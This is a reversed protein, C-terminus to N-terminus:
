VLSCFSRVKYFDEQETAIGFVKDFTWPNTHKGDASPAIGIENRAEDYEVSMEEGNTQEKGNMPRIRIVVTISESAGDPSAM